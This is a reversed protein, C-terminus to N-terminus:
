GWLDPYVLGIFLAIFGKRPLREEENLVRVGIRSSLGSFGYLCRPQGPVAAVHLGQLFEEAVRDRADLALGCIGLEDGHDSVVKRKLPFM